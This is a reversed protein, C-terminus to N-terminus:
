HIGFVFPGIIFGTQLISAEDANNADVTVDIFVKGFGLILGSNFSQTQGVALITKSGSVTKSIMGLIGGTVTITYELNNADVKGINKIEANAGIPGSINIISLEAGEGEVIAGMAWNYDLGFDQLEDWTAGNDFSNWDGKGDVAPGDDAFVLYAGPESEFWDFAIWLETYNSISIPVKLPVIQFETTNFYLGNDQYIIPGPTTQTGQAYITLNAWIEKQTSETNTKVTVKTLSWDQYPSLEDPTLRIASMWHLPGCGCGITHTLTQPNYYHIEEEVLPLKGLVVYSSTEERIEGINANIPIAFAVGIFLLIVAVALVKKLVKKGV